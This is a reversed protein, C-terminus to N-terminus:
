NTRKDFNIIYIIKIIKSGEEDFIAAKEEKIQLWSFHYIDGLNILAFALWIGKRVKTFNKEEKAGSRKRKGKMKNTKRTRGLQAGVGSRRRRKEM